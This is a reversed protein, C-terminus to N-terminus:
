LQIDFPLVEFVLQTEVLDNFTFTKKGKMITLTPSNPNDMNAGFVIRDIGSLDQTTRNVKGCEKCKPLNLGLLVRM